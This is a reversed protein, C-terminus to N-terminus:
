DRVESADKNSRVQKLDELIKLPLPNFGMAVMKEKAIALIFLIRLSSVISFRGVIM